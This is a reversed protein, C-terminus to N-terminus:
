RYHIFAPTNRDISNLDNPNNAGNDPELSGVDFGDGTNQFVLIFDTRNNAPFFGNANPFATSVTALVWGDTISNNPFGAAPFVSAAELEDGLQFVGYSESTANFLGFAYGGVLNNINEGFQVGFSTLTFAFSKIQNRDILISDLPNARDDDANWEGDVGTMDGDADEIWYVFQDLPGAAILNQGLVVENTQISTPLTPRRISSTAWGSQRAFPVTNWGPYIREAGAKSIDITFQVADEASNNNQETRNQPQFQIPDGDISSLLSSVPFREGSPLEAVIIVPNLQSSLRNRGTFSAIPASVYLDYSGDAATVTATSLIPAGDLDFGTNYIETTTGDASRPLDWALELLGNTIRDTSEEGQGTFRIAALNSTIFQLQITDTLFDYDPDGTSEPTNTYVRVNNPGRQLYVFQNLEM